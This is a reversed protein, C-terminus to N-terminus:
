TDTFREFIFLEPSPEWGGCQCLLEQLDPRHAYAESGFIALWQMRSLLCTHGPEEREYSEPPALCISHVHLTGVHRLEGVTERASAPDPCHELVQWSVVLDWPGHRDRSERAFDAATGVYVRAKPVRAKALSAVGEDVDVGEVFGFVNALHSLLRGTGCGVDLVSRVTPFAQRLAVAIGYYVGDPVGPQDVM